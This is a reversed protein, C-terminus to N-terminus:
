CVASRDPCDEFYTVMSMRFICMRLLATFDMWGGGGGFFDRPIDSDGHRGAQGDTVHTQWKRAM